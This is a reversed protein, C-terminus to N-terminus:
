LNKIQKLREVLQITLKEREKEETEGIHEPTLPTPQIMELLPMAKHAAKAIQDADSVDKLMDLYEDISKHIDDIIQREAEPDGDTFPLLASRLSDTETASSEAKVKVIIGTLQCITAALTQM